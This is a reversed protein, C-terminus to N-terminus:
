RGRWRWPRRRSGDLNERRIEESLLIAFVQDQTVEYYAMLKDLVAVNAASLSVTITTTHQTDQM